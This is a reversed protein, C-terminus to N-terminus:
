RTQEHVTVTAKTQKPTDEERIRMEDQILFNTFLDHGSRIVGILYMGTAADESFSPFKCDFLGDFLLNSDKRSNEKRVGRSSHLSCFCGDDPFFFVSAFVLEKSQRPRQEYQEMKEPIMKKM